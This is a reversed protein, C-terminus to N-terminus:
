ESRLDITLSACNTKIDNLSITKSGYGIQSFEIHTKELLSRDKIYIFFKGDLNSHIINSESGCTIRVGALKENNEADIIQGSLIISSPHINKPKEEGFGNVQCLFTVILLLVIRMNKIKSIIQKILVM